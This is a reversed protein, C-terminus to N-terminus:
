AAVVSILKELCWEELQFIGSPLIQEPLNTESDSNWRSYRDYCDPDIPLHSPKIFSEARSSKKLCGLMKSLFMRWNMTIATDSSCENWILKEPSFECQFRWACRYFGDNQYGLMKPLFMWRRAMMAHNFMISYLTTSNCFLGNIRYLFYWSRPSRKVIKRLPSALRQQLPLHDECLDQISCVVRVEEVLPAPHYDQNIIMTVMIMMIILIMIWIQLWVVVQLQHLAQRDLRQLVVNSELWERNDHDTSHSEHCGVDSPSTM